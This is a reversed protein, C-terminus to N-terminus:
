PPPAIGEALARLESPVLRLARIVEWWSRTNNPETWEVLSAETGGAAENKVCVTSRSATHM